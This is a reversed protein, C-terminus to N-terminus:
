GRQKKHRDHVDYVGKEFCKTYNMRYGLAPWPTRGINQDVLNILVPKDPQIETGRRGLRNNQHGQDNQYSDQLKFIYFSFNLVCSLMISGM